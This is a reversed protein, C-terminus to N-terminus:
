FNLKLSTQLSRPGGIQYAANLGGLGTNLTQTERGSNTDTLAGFASFRFLYHHPRHM